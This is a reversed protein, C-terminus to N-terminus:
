TLLQLLTTHKKAVPFRPYAKQIFVPPNFLVGQHAEQLMTLDNYSDGVAFVQFGIKKLAKVAKRKGDKQRLVYGTIFGRKNVRLRNCFLTPNELQDMLPGAFEYFTDSLIIVPGTRKLDKIFKKAGPLPRMKRIVQQLSQLCIGEKKLIKLRYKMLTDYNPIDRTTVTLAEVKYTKAVRIWIEPILVGELDLCNVHM